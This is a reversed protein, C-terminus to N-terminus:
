DLRRLKSDPDLSEDYAYCKKRKQPDLDTVCLMM